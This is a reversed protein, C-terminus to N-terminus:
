FGDRELFDNFIQGLFLLNVDLFLSVLYSQEVDVLVVSFNRRADYVSATSQNSDPFGLLRGLSVRNLQGVNWLLCDVSIPGRGEM